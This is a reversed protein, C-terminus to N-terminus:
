KDGWTQGRDKPVIRRFTYLDGALDAQHEQFKEWPDWQAAILKGTIGDSAASALYVALNAGLELPAAAGESWKVNKAYFDAGAKDPGAALVDRILRTNLPGPAVSNADIHFPRLEEALAETLRMIGFKTTAYATCNPIPAAGGGSISILKGYNRPKMRRMAARACLMAGFINVEFAHKWKEFDIEDSPGIPGYIGANNVLAHLDGFADAAAFLKEVDDAKAVDASLGTLRQGAALRPRLEALAQEVDGASRACFAVNAGARLFAEVIARGLGQSGGTVITNRGTLKM